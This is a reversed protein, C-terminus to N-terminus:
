RSRAASAAPRMAASSALISVSGSTIARKGVDFDRLRRQQIQEDAVPRQLARMADNGLREGCRLAQSVRRPARAVPDPQGRVDRDHARRQPRDQRAKEAGQVTVAKGHLAVFRAIGEPAAVPLHLLPEDALGGFAARSSRRAM